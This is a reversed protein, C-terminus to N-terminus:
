FNTSAGAKQAQIPLQYFTLLYAPIAFNTSAGAKPAFPAVWPPELGRGPVLSKFRLSVM